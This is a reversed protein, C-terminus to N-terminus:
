EDSGVESAPPDGPLNSVLLAFWATSPNQQTIFKVVMTLPVSLLMGVAGFVWGWFVLSLFVALTSLGVRQGMVRPEIVNGILMNVLLYLGIILGTRVPDGDLLSLLVPPIAALVSGINPVFNLLFALFGWLVAFQVDMLFLALWILFGTLLSVMAKTAMYGNMSSALEQLARLSSEFSDAKSMALKRPYSPADALLFIVTFLILVMNGLTDGLGSLFGGFFGMAAAPDLTESLGEHSIHLGFGALWEAWRVLLARFQEQYGPLANFFDDATTSLLLFIVFMGLAVALGVLGSALWGPLGRRVLANIPSGCIVAIFLALLFPVLLNSSMRAGAIIVVLSAMILLSDRVRSTASADNVILESM